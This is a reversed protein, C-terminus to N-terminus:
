RLLDAIDDYGRAAALDAPTNGNKDTARIDAGAAVLAAALDANRWQAANHLATANFNNKANVDAGADILAVAAQDMGRKASIHLPTEGTHAKAHVDAGADILLKAANLKRHIAYNRRREEESHSHISKTRPNRELAYHLPTYGKSTKANVDAGANILADLTKTRCMTAYLAATHLPTEGDSNVDAGAAILGRAYDANRYVAAIHLADTASNAGAAVFFRALAATGSVAGKSIPKDGHYNLSDNPAFGADLYAQAMEPITGKREFARELDILRSDNDHIHRLQHLITPNPAPAAITQPACAQRWDPLADSACALAALTLALLAAAIRTYNTKDSFNPLTM